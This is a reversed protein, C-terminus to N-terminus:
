SQLFANIDDIIKGVDCAYLGASNFTNYEIIKYEDGVQAVDVVYVPAPVFRSHAEMVINEVEPIIHRQPKVIGYQRYLSSSSIKGNVVVVRWECGLKKYPAIIVDFDDTELYNIDLMKAHWTAFEERTIVMGAFEKNDSNPKIFFESLKVKDAVESLKMIEFSDNVLLDSIDISGGSSFNDNTWVGPNWGHKEALTQVGISGYVVIPNSVQPVKGEIEHIFPIIRVVRYPIDNTKFHDIMENFCVEAFVDRELIWTIM